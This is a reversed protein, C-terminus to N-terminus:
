RISPSLHWLNSAKWWRIKETLMNVICICYDHSTGSLFIVNEVDDDVTWAVRVHELGSRRLAERPVAKDRMDWSGALCQHPRKLRPLREDRPQWRRQISKTLSQYGLVMATDSTGSPISQTVKIGYSSHKTSQTAPQLCYVSVVLSINRFHPFASVRV